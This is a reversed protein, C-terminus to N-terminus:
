CPKKLYSFEPAKEAWSLRRRLTAGGGVERKRGEGKM